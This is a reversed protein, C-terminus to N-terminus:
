RGAPQYTLSLAGNSLARSEVLKLPVQDTGDEVLRQGTGVLIPYLLLDLQDLLRERLLSRVLMASGLITINKGPQQKLKTIQEAIDGKILTSNRWEVAKLTTSVAIKQTKNIYDAYPSDAATKDPWYAAFMGYTRRGLLLTDSAAMGKATVQWVEDNFYPPSWKEPAEVVGDLSIM